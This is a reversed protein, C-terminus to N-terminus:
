WAAPELSVRVQRAACWSRFDAALVDAWHRLTDAPVASRPAFICALVQTDAAMVKTFQSDKVPTGVPITRGGDYRCISLLGAVDLEQGAQNFIFAEEPAGYRILLSMGARELAVLSIPLGSRLSVVNLVDVANLIAPWQQADAATRLLYEQAPKNRGSPKFGGARLLSRVAQRRPGGGEPESERVRAVCAQCYETLAAAPPAITMDSAEVLGVALDVVTPDITLQVTM